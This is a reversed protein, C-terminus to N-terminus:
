TSTRTTGGSLKPAADLVEGAGLGVVDVQALDGHLGPELEVLIAQEFAVLPDGPRRLLFDVRLQAQIEHVGQQPLVAALDFGRLLVRQRLEDPELVDAAIEVGVGVGGVADGGDLLHGLGGFLQAVLEEADRVVRLGRHDGVALGGLTEGLLDFLDVPDVRLSLPIVRSAPASTSM